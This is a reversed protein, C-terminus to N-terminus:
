NIKEFVNKSQKCVPCLFDDKEKTIDGNYIYNCIKCKYRLGIEKEKKIEEPAIYTPATKPAAGKITEHYFKYTMPIEKNFIDGDVIEGVFLTHTDLEIEQKTKLIIYGVSDVIVPLEDIKKFPISDFKNKDKSSQFGFVSIIDPNSKEKLISLAFNKTRKITSNTYNQHNLSITITNQSTQFASNVICGIPRDNDFCSVVYVGYSLDWLVKKNLM